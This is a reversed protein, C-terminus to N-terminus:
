RASVRLFFSFFFFFPFLVVLRETKNAGPVSSAILPPEGGSFYKSCPPCLPQHVPLAGHGGLGRLEGGVAFTPPIVQWLLCLKPCSIPTLCVM